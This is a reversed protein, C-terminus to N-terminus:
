TQQGINMAQNNVTAPDDPPAPHVPTVYSSYYSQSMDVKVNNVLVGLIKADVSMLLNRAKQATDRPTRGDVVLVVGDVQSSIVLADTVPTLPPGDIVVYEFHRRLLELVRTMRQSGILEPPNPPVPGAAVVFLNPIGSQQIETHLATQGSLYRSIGRGADLSLSTALRPRRLDLELILTRAGTQALSIALNVSTTSKGEGAISSTVLVNHPRNEPSFLLSTRLARYSEWYLSSALATESSGHSAELGLPMLYGGNAARWPKDFSPIAGLFPMRLEREVDEPTKITRDFMDVATAAAMGAILSVLLGLTLAMPVNPSTPLRPVSGRDIVHVNGAKLGTSVDTEKLRQLLGEHLQRDTDVERKLLNYEISDQALQDALKQQAELAGTVRNRHAVALDYEVKAQRIARAKENALQSRVDQLQQNLSLVEPWKPGFRLTATALKQELDSRRSDLSRMVETKLKEPFSEIPTNQLGQYQNALVQEEVKTVEDSLETVKRLVINTDQTPPLNHARSYDVLRQESRQLKEEIIALERQLFVQARSTADSKSEFGYNVYEDALTNVARAAFEPDESRYTVKVVQTGEVPAVLINGAFWRALSDVREPESALKLAVVTRRALVESKLVQAQTGLYRPDPVVAAYAEKYPLVSQDPDVQINVRATYFRQTTFTWACVGGFVTLAVALATWKRKRLIEWYKQFEGRKEDLYEDIWINEPRPASTAPVGGLERRMLNAM